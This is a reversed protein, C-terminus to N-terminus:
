GLVTEVVTHLALPRGIWRGDGANFVRYIDEVVGVRAYEPVLVLGQGEVKKCMVLSGEADHGFYVSIPRGDPSRFEMVGLLGGDGADM